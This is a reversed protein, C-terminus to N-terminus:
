LDPNGELHILKGKTGNQTVRIYPGTHGKGGPIAEKYGYNLQIENGKNDFWRVGRGKKIVDRTWGTPIHKDIEVM